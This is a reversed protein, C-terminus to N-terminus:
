RGPAGAGPPVAPRPEAPDADAALEGAAIRVRDLSGRPLVLDGVAVAPCQPSPAALAPPPLSALLERRIADRQEEFTQAAGTAAEQRRLATRAADQQRKLEDADAQWDRVQWGAWASGALVAGVAALRVWPIM